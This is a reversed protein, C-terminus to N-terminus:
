GCPERLPVGGSDTLEKGAKKLNQLRIKFKVSCSMGLKKYSDLLKRDAYAGISEGKERRPLKLDVLQHYVIYYEEKFTLPIKTKYKIIANVCDIKSPKPADPLKLTDRQYERSYFGKATIGHIMEDEHPVHIKVVQDGKTLEVYETGKLNRIIYESEPKKKEPSKAKQPSKTKEPSKAAGVRSAKSARSAGSSARSRPSAVRSARSGGSGARSRHSGAQSHQDEQMPEEVSPQTGEPEVTQQTGTEEVSAEEEDHVSEMVQDPDEIIGQNLIELDDPNINLDLVNEDEEEEDSYLLAGTEPNLEKETHIDFHRGDSDVRPSSIDHLDYHVDEDLEFIRTTYESMKELDVGWSKLFELGPDITLFHREVFLMTVEAEIQDRDWTLAITYFFDWTFWVSKAISQIIRQGSEGGTVLLDVYDAISNKDPNEAFFDRSQVRLPDALVFMQKATLPIGGFLLHKCYTYEHPNGVVGERILKQWSEEMQAKLVDNGKSRHMLNLGRDVKRNFEAETMTVHRIDNNHYYEGAGEVLGRYVYEITGDENKGVEVASTKVPYDILNIFQPPPPLGGAVEGTDTTEMRELKHNPHPLDLALFIKAERHKKVQRSKVRTM